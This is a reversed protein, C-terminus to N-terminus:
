KLTEEVLTRLGRPDAQMIAALSDVAEEITYSGYMAGPRDRELHVLFFTLKTLHESM